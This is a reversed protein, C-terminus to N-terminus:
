LSLVSMMCSSRSLRVSQVESMCTPPPLMGGAGAGARVRRRPVAAWHSRAHTHGKAPSPPQVPNTHPVAPSLGAPGGSKSAGAPGALGQETSRAAAPRRAPGRPRRRCSPPPGPTLAACRRRLAAHVASRWPTKPASDSPCVPPAPLRRCPPRLLRRRLSARRGEPPPPSYSSARPSPVRVQHSSPTTAAPGMSQPPAGGAAAPPACHTKVAPGLKCQM